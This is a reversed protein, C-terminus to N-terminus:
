KGSGHSEEGEGWEEEDGADIGVAVRHVGEARLLWWRVGVLTLLPPVLCPILTLLLVLEGVLAADGIASCICVCVQRLAVGAVVLAVGRSSLRGILLAIILTIQWM